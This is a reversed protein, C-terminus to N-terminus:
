RMQGEWFEKSREGELGIIVNFFRAIVMSFSIEQNQDEAETLGPYATLGCV